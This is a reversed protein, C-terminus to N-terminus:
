HGQLVGKINRQFHTDKCKFFKINYKGTFFKKTSSDSLPLKSMGGGRSVKWQSLLLGNCKKNSNEYDIM